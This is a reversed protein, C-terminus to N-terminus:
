ESEPNIKWCESAIEFAEQTHILLVSIKSSAESLQLDASSSQENQIKDLKIGLFSFNDCVRERILAANEGIGATFILADIGKLSAVMAGILGNLRHIYVDLALTARTDKAACREIIDRMDSSIGSIGLLGSEKYLEHEIEKASLKKKELLYLLIGPDVSGCRTDMMLGDLPTFGMTTDISKGGNIACLSAGSGLHCIVMKLDQLDRKLIEAARKSCYQFSTGHFGFRQIGEEYWRYPGPYIQAAVPMSGHFATDFVAIQPRNKVLHELVEIVELEARNHLPAQESLLRIKEKVGKDILTAKQFYKGGHVIRHGIVEIEDLSSLVASEGQYLLRLVEELAQKTNKGQVSKSYQNGRAQVKLFPESFENKWQLHAEWLPEKPHFSASFDYLYCKISSSGCNSVFIKM